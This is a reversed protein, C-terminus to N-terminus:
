AAVAQREPWVRLEIQSKPLVDVVIVNFQCGYREVVEVKIEKNRYAASLRAGNVLVALGPLEVDSAIILTGEDDLLKQNVLEPLMFEMKHQKCLSLLRRISNTAEPNAIANSPCTTHFLGYRMATQGAIHECVADPTVVGPNYVTYPIETVLSLLGDKRLPVFPHSTGFLFGSTGAQRGGKSVSARAGGVECMDYFTKWGKWRGDYARSATLSPYASLRSLASWQIKFKEENWGASDDTLYLLGVEHDWAKMARYVDVSYGPLAIMWTAPAGFMALLRHFTNVHEREFEMCDVTLMAASKAGRPWHWFIPTSLGRADVSQVIARILM